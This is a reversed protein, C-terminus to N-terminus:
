LNSNAIQSLSQRRQQTEINGLNELLTAATKGLKGNHALKLAEHLADYWLGAKTYVMATQRHDSKGDIETKVTSLLKVVEMQAIAVKDSSPFSPNCLLAIQWLYRQGVILGPRNEPLSFQMIGPSSQLKYTQIPKPKLQGDAGYEYLRLEVPFSRSDPVFWAVTPHQAATRGVHKEPALVTLSPGDTSECGGRSGTTSSTGQPPRQDAPPQYSDAGVFVAKDPVPTPSPLSQTQAITTQAIVLIMGLIFCPAVRSHFCKKWWMIQTIM